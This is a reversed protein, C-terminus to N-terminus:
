SIPRDGTPVWQHIWLGSNFDASYIKGDHIMAGWNMPANPLKVNEGAATIFHDIERGQRYLDGRMEGSVDVARLGANYYGIYLTTEDDEIWVNHTGAEPVEYKAVEVPHELDSVDFVHIYGTPRIPKDPDWNPPFIEDGVFVYDRWRWAVHTNGAPYYVRSVFVPETPTGGKGAGGLDLIVLGDDWYSLYAIGDKVFVDHLVKNQNPLGWRGVEKPNRRDSVDIIHLDRTGDNVVYVLDGVIFTNHVGGTVTETYESFISPHLPNAIDLVVIGNKRDAAGERTMIAFGGDVNVKVDNVRRADVVISDTIVPNSPDSIDFVRLSNDGYNGVYAANKFVWLDGTHAYSVAGRGVFELKRDFTRPEVRLAVTAARGGFDATVVYQGPEEAVFAGDPDVRAEPGLVTWRPYVATEGAGPIPFLRVVDGTRIVNRPTSLALPGSPAPTVTVAQTASAGGEVTATLTVTGPKKTVLWPGTAEAVSPDSSSWAVDSDFAIAGLRNYATARLPLWSTAAVRTAPLDTEIRSPPLAAVVVAITATKGGAMAGITREGASTAVFRGTSDIAGVEYSTFWMAPVDVAEGREGYAVAVLQVTDGVSAEVRAPQIEVRSVNPAEADQATAV